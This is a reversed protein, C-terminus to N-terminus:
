MKINSTLTWRSESCADTPAGTFLTQSLHAGAAEEPLMRLSDPRGTKCLQVRSDWLGKPVWGLRHPMEQFSSRPPTATGREGTSEGDRSSCLPALPALSLAPAARARGAWTDGLGVSGQWGLGGTFCKISHSQLACFGARAQYPNLAVAVFTKRLPFAAELGWSNSTLVTNSCQNSYLVWLNLLHKPNKEM